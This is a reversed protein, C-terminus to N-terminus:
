REREGFLVTGLRVMTAGEEIAVDFDNSMGMSLHRPEFGPVERGCAEFLRRAEAFAPRLVAEDSTFPAMMMLGRIRIRPLEVIEGVADITEAPSFGGKTDEGSTNVQVLGAVDDDAREAEKSLRRAIRLSDVSQILDFLPLVKRAKNRQLHGIMHWRARTRGVETVKYELEGVRNEGIEELGAELAAEVAAPPHGKTVAVLRIDADRGSRELARQIREEARPLNERLREEYM